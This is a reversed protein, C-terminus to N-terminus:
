CLKERSIDYLVGVLCSPRATSKATASSRTYSQFSSNSLRFPKLSCIRFIEVNEWFKTFKPGYVSVAHVAHPAYPRIADFQLQRAPGRTAM